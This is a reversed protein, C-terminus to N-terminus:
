PQEVVYKGHRAGHCDAFALGLRDYATAPFKRLEVLGALNFAKVFRIRLVALPSVIEGLDQLM